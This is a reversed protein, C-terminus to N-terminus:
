DALVERYQISQRGFERAEYVDTVYLDFRGAGNIAGGTDTCKVEGIGDLYFVRGMNARDCAMTKYPIPTTGSSTRGEPYNRLSPCNLDIEKDTVLGGCSYATVTATKMPEPTPTPEQAHVVDVVQIEARPIFDDQKTPEKFMLALAIGISLGVIAIFTIISFFRVRYGYISIQHQLPQINQVYTERKTTLIKM